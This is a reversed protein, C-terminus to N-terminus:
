SGRMLPKPRMAKGSSPPAPWASCWRRIPKASWPLTPSCRGCRRSSRLCAALCRRHRAHHMAMALGFRMQGASAVACDLRTWQVMALMTRVGDGEGGLREAHAAHFEVEASANSRNGLKDKLRQFRLANVSGDPRFRPLLFATLGGKAQALVVFADSMPASLFWKHGTIEYHGNCARAESINARM